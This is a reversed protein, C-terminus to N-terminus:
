VRGHLKDAKCIPNQQALVERGIAKFDVTCAHEEPYRHMGCFVNGCRCDFGTLGVKKNCSKCRKKRVGWSDKVIATIDSALATQADSKAPNGLGPAEIVTEALAEKLLDVNYCNSCPNSRDEMGLPFCCGNVALQLRDMNKALPVEPAEQSLEQAQFDKYCKSCLNQKDKFGYFGCGNACLPSDM